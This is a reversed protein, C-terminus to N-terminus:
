KKLGSLNERANATKFPVVIKGESSFGLDKNKVFRLQNMILLTSIILAMSITFQITVLSKRLFQQGFRQSIQNNIATIPKFSSLYFAPYSGAMLTIILYIGCLVLGILLIETEQLQINEGVLQTLLPLISTAAIIAIILSCAAVLGTEFYFQKVIGSKAAGLTKRVGVEVGRKISRATSLNMFNVCAIILIFCAILLLIKILALNGTTALQNERKSHLHIDPVSQLSLIKTAGFEKLQDGGYREMFEPLRSELENVNSNGHLEVYGTIFNGGAWQNNNMVYEGIGGSNMSM